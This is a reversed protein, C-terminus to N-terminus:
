LGHHTLTLSHIFYGASFMDLVYRSRHDEGDFEKVDDDVDESVVPLSERCESESVADESGTGLLADKVVDGDTALLVVGIVCIGDKKSEYIRPMGM